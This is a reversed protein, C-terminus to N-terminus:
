EVADNTTDLIGLVRDLELKSVNYELISKMLIVNTESQKKRAELLDKQQYVKEVMGKSINEVTKDRYQLSMQATHISYISEEMKNCIKEINYTLDRKASKEDEQLSKLMQEAQKKQGYGIGIPRFLPLEIEAGIAYARGQFLKEQETGLTYSKSTDRYEFMGTAYFNPFNKRHAAEASFRAKDMAKELRKIQPNSVLAKSSLKDRYLPIQRFNLKGQPKMEANLDRGMYHNLQKRTLEYNNTAEFLEREADAVNAKAGLLDVERAQGSQLLKSTDDVNIKATELAIKKSDVHYLRFLVEYFTKKVNYVVDLVEQKMEETLMEKEANIKKVNSKVKGSCWLMTKGSIRWVDSEGTENSNGHTYNFNANPLYDSWAEIVEGDKAKRKQRISKIKENNKLACEICEQLSWVGKDMSVKDAPVPEPKKETKAAKATDKAKEPVMKLTANDAFTLSEEKDEFSTCSCVMLCVLSLMGMWHFFEKYSSYM